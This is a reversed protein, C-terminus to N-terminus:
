KRKREFRSDNLVEFPWYLHGCSNNAFFLTIRLMSFAILTMVCNVTKLQTNLSTRQGNLSRGM